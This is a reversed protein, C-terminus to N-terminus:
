RPQDVLAAHRLEDIYKMAAEMAETVSHFYRYGGDADNLKTDGEYEGLKIARDAKANEQDHPFLHVAYQRGAKWLVEIVYGRYSMRQM